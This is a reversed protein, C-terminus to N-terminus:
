APRNEVAISLGEFNPETVAVDVLWPKRVPNQCGRVDCACVCSARNGCSNLADKFAVIRPEFIM